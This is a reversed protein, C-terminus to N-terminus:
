ARRHPLGEPGRGGPLAARRRPGPHQLIDQPNQSGETLQEGATCREGDEVRLRAAHPCPTSASTASRALAIILQRQRRPSAVTGGLSEGRDTARATARAAGAAPGRDVEDGSPKVLLEYSSPCSSLDDDIPRAHSVAGQDRQDTRARQGRGIGDIEAMIAQGKPVRAEFLEEVRPLGQTIDEGAVGGTHFTRMTLQTGPEGISQAAIIGVAEGMEVLDGRPWTAATACAPLRRPAGRLDAALARQRPRHGAAEIASSRGDEDIEDNRDVIIEGTKEDVVDTRRAHPGILRDGFPERIQTPEARAHDLHRADTGCDDEYIIVDQAM